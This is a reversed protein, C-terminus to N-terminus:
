VAPLMRKFKSFKLLEGGLDTKARSLRDERFAFRGIMNKAERLADHTKVFYQRVSPALNQRERQRAIEQPHPEGVLM